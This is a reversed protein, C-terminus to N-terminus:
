RVTVSSSRAVDVLGGDLLYRFEYQGPRAPATVALTGSPQGNTAGWWDDEYNGGVRCLAIWDGARARPATWNVSMQGGADVENTSATVTAPATRALQIDFRTNGNVTVSIRGASSGAPNVLEYGPKIAMLNHVGNIAWGLNYVGDADTYVSTHGDPSGCSDCYVEVGELPVNGADAIEFVTGSLTYAAARELRIDVHTDGSMTISPTATVFGYRSVSLLRNKALLGAISYTGNADTMTSRGTDM